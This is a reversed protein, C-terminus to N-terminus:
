RSRDAAAEEGSVPVTEDMTAKLYNAVDAVQESTLTSAMPPMDGKGETIALTLQDRSYHPTAIIVPLRDLSVHVGEERLNAPPPDLFAALRGNGQGSTGHCTACHDTYVVQGRAVSQALPVSENGPAPDDPRLSSPCGALAFGLLFAVGDQFIIRRMSHNRMGM